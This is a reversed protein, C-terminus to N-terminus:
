NWITKFFEAFEWLEMFELESVNIFLGVALRWVGLLGFICGKFFYRATTRVPMEADMSYRAFKKKM